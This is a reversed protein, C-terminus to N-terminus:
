AQEVLQKIRSLGERLNERSTAYSLRIYGETGFASGPVTAVRAEKILLRSFDVSTECGTLRMAESVNPYAYFAGNPRVCSFGPIGEVKELVLERRHRYEETMEAIVSSDISLAALAARQSISAPNGSEHSQYDALKKIRDAATVCYGVRWGTMSYTKSFSGVLAFFPDDPAAMAAISFHQHGDYVFYEYTEDSLLLVSHEKCIRYIEEMAARPIVAGTPNNPTNLILGRTRPGIAEEIVEPRLEFNDEERTEIIRPEAETVKVVEPFTVWYPAPILVEDGAEFCSMCLNHITHKAGSSLAVHAAQFHSGWTNNFHEAVGRRLEAIGIAPTYKTFDEQIAAVAAAKIPDPTPFDPEGSGLEIVDIGQAKLRQAEQMVAITPSTTIGGLRKAFKM